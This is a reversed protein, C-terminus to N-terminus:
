AVMVVSRLSDASLVHSVRSVSGQVIANAFAAGPMWDGPADTAIELIGAAGDYATATWPSLIPTPPRLPATQITGTPDMWWDDVLVDQLVQSMPGAQYVYSGGLPPGGLLPPGIYAALNVPLEAALSSATSLVLAVPVGIPSTFPPPLAAAPMITRWGGTGGVLRVRVEGAFAAARVVACSWTSNALFLVQPGQPVVIARDLTVDAHWIGSYPVDLRARVVPIGSLSAFM